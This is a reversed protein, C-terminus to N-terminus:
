GSSQALAARIGQTIKGGGLQRAREIEADSLKVMVKRGEVRPRGPKRKPQQDQQEDM